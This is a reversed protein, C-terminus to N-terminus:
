TVELLLIFTEEVYELAALFVVASSCLHGVLVASLDLM